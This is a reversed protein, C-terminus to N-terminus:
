MNYYGKKRIGNSMDYILSTIKDSSSNYSQSSSNYEEVAKDMHKETVLKVGDNGNLSNIIKEYKSILILQKYLHNEKKGMEVIDNYLENYYTSDFNKNYKELNRKAIQLADYAAQTNPGWTSRDDNGSGGIYGHGTTLPFSRGVNIKGRRSVGIVLNTFADLINRNEPLGPNIPRSDANKKVLSLAYGLSGSSEKSKKDKNYFGNPIKVEKGNIIKVFFEPEELGPNPGITTTPLRNSLIKTSSQPNLVFENNNIFSVLLKLFLELEEPPEPKVEGINKGNEDYKFQKHKKVGDPNKVAEMFKYGNNNWWRTFTEVQISKTGDSNLKEYRQFKFAKLTGIVFTPNVKIINEKLKKYNNQFSNGKSSLMEALESFVFEEGKIMRNFFNECKEPEDFICLHGCNGDKEKYSKIDEEAREKDYRIWKTTPKNNTDLRTYLTGNFDKAWTNKFNKIEEEAQEITYSDEPSAYIENDPYDEVYSENVPSVRDEVFNLLNEVQNKELEYAGTKCAQKINYFNKKDGSNKLAEEYNEKTLKNRLASNFDVRVNHPFAFSIGAQLIKGQKPKEYPKLLQSFDEVVKINIRYNEYSTSPSSTNLQIMLNELFKPITSIGEKVEFFTNFAALHAPEITKKGEKYESIIEEVFLKFRDNSSGYVTFVDLLWSEFIYDLLEKVTGASNLEVTNFKRKLVDNYTEGSKGELSYYTDMDLLSKSQESMKKVISDIKSQEKEIKNFTTNGVIVQNLNVKEQNVASNFNKYLQGKITIESIPSDFSKLNAAFLQLAEKFRKSVENRQSKDVYGSVDADCENTIISMFKPNICNANFNKDCVNYLIKFYEGFPNFISLQINETGSM